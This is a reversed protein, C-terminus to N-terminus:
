GSRAICSPMPSIGSARGRQMIARRGARGGNEFAVLRATRSAKLEPPTLLQRLRTFM